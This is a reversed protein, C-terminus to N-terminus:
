TKSCPYEKHAVITTTQNRENPCGRGVFPQELCESLLSGSLGHGILSNKPMCGVTNLNPPICSQGKNHWLPHAPEITYILRKRM